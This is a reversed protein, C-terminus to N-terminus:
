EEYLMKALRLRAKSPTEYLAKAPDLNVYTGGGMAYQGGHESRYGYIRYQEGKNLTKLPSLTGNVEKYLTVPEKITLRGIQGPKVETKGWMVKGVFPFLKDVQFFLEDEYDVGEYFYAKIDWSGESMGAHQLYYRGGNLAKPLYVALGIYNKGNPAVGANAMGSEYKSKNLQKTQLWSSYLDFGYLGKSNSEFVSAKDMLVYGVATHNKASLWVNTSWIGKETPYMKFVLTGTKNGLDVYPQKAGSSGYDSHAGTKFNVKVETPYIPTAAQVELSAQGLGGVATGSLLSIALASALTWKGVTKLM